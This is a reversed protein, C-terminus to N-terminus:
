WGRCTRRTETGAAMGQHSWLRREEQQQGPSGQLRQGLVHGLAVARSVAGPGLPRVRVSLCVALDQQLGSEMVVRRQRRSAGPVCWAPGWRLAWVQGEERASPGARPVAPIGEQPGDARPRRAGNDGLGGFPWVQVRVAM